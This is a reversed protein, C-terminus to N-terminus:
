EHNELPCTTKKIACYGQPPRTTLKGILVSVYATHVVMAIINQWEAQFLFHRNREVGDAFHGSAITVVSSWSSLMLLIQQPVVTWLAGWAEGFLEKGAVALASVFVLVSVVALKSGFLAYYIATPTTIDVTPSAAMDVAWGVHLLGILILLYIGNM